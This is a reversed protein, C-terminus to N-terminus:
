LPGDVCDRLTLPALYAHGFMIAVLGTACSAETSISGTWAWFVKLVYHNWGRNVTMVTHNDAKYDCTYNDTDSRFNCGEYSQPAANPGNQVVITYGNYDDYERALLYSYNQDEANQYPPLDVLFDPTSALQPSNPLEEYDWVVRCVDQRSNAIANTITCATIYGPRLGPSLFYDARIRYGPNSPLTPFGAPPFPPPACQPACQALMLTLASASLLGRFRM